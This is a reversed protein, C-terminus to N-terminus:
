GPASSAAEWRACADDVARGGLGRAWALAFLVAREVEPGAREAAPLVALTQAEADAIREVSIVASSLKAVILARLAPDAQAEALATELHRRYDDLHVYVAEALLLWARARPSGSPISQLGATLLATLRESEGATELYSALVLLRDP